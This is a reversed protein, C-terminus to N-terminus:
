VAHADLYGLVRFLARTPAIICAANDRDFRELDRLAVWKLERYEWACTGGEIRAHELQGADCAMVLDESHAVHDRAIGVIRGAAFALGVEEEGEELLHRRITDEDLHTISAHPPPVGGCPGLEWMGPYVRTDEGRRGLLVHREGSADRATVAGTIALLRVGTRVRPQAILRKFEDRRCVIEGTEEDTSVVALLSGNYLRANASSRESWIEEVLARERPSLAPPPAPSMAVRVGGEGHVRFAEVGDIGACPIPELRPM